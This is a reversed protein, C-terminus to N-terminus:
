KRQKKLVMIEENILDDKKYKEKLEEFLKLILQKKELNESILM